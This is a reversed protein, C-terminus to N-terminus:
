PRTWLANIIRWGEDTRILHLYEVYPVSHTVTVAVGDHIEVVRTEYVRDAPDPRRGQGAGAWEIMEAATVPELAFVGGEDRTWGRKALLPHLARRMRGPDADFWGLFYNDVTARVAAEETSDTPADFPTITASRADADAREM